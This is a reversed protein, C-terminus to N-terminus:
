LEVNLCTTETNIYSVAAIESSPYSFVSTEALAGLNCSNGVYVGPSQYEGVQDRIHYSSRGNPPSNSFCKHSINQFSKCQVGQLFTIKIIREFGFIIKHM